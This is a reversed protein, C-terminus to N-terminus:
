TQCYAALFARVIKRVGRPSVHRGDEAFVDERLAVEYSPWYVVDDFEREIQGVVTRLLSKTETNAVVIDRETYTRAISVPSVTLIVPRGPRHAALLSCVRRMNDLNTAFDSLVFECADLHADDPRRCLYRGSSRDRWTEIMGLTIVYVDAARLAEGICDDLATSLASLGDLTDAFVRKRFPNQYLDDGLLGVGERARPSDIRWFDDARAPAREGFAQEFEHRISFTDYHNVNDRDPLRGIREHRLDLELDFYRPLVRFGEDRLVSRIEVAFCSGLAAVAADRTILPRRRVTISSGRESHDWADNVPGDVVHISV